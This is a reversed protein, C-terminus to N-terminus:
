FQEIPNIPKKEDPFHERHKDYIEDIIKMMEEKPGCYIELTDLPAIVMGIEDDESVYIFSGYSKKLKHELISLTIMSLSKIFKRALVVESIPTKKYKACTERVISILKQLDIFEIEKETVDM